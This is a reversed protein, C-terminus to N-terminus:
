GGKWLRRDFTFPAPHRITLRAIEPHRPNLLYNSEKVDLRVLLELAALSLTASTYVVPIGPHNWRGGYLRGGEGDFARAAHREAVLRWVTLPQRLRM